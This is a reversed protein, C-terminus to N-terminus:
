DESEELLEEIEDEIDEAKDKLEKCEGEDMIAEKFDGVIRSLDRNFDDPSQFGACPTLFSLFFLTILTKM